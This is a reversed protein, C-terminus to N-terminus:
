VLAEEETMGAPEPLCVFDISAPQMARTGLGECLLAFEEPPVKYALSLACPMVPLNEPRPKRRFLSGLKHFWRYPEIGVVVPSTGTVSLENKKVDIIVIVKNHM